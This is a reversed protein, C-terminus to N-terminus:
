FPIEVTSLAERCIPCSHEPLVCNCDQLREAREIWKAMEYDRQIIIVVHASQDTDAPRIDLKTEPHGSLRMIRERTSRTPNLYYRGTREMDSDRYVSVHTPSLYIKTIIKKTM